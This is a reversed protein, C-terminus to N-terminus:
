RNQDHTLFDETLGARALAAGILQSATASKKMGRIFCDSYHDALFRAYGDYWAKPVCKCYTKKVASAHRIFDIIHLLGSRDHGTGPRRLYTVHNLATILEARALAQAVFVPDEGDRLDPYRTGSQLLKHRSFLFTTHLWPTWISPEERLRFSHRQVSPLSSIASRTEDGLTGMAGRVLDAGDNVASAYLSQIADPPLVDDADTFQVFEGQALAIGINRATGPGCNSKLRVVTMSTHSSAFELLISSSKDSSHDDIFLLEIQDMDQALLSRICDPLYSEKNWVPIIISVKPASVDGSCLVTHEAAMRVPVDSWDTGIAFLPNPGTSAAGRSVFHALANVGNELKNQSRYWNSNFLPHPDRGEVEGTTIYHVLPNAGTCQVDSNSSLYWDSDFLANPDRGEFAGFQLYHNLPNIGAQKVDPNRDLYWEPEFITAILPDMIM